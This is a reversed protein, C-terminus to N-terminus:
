IYEGDVPSFEELTDEKEEKTTTEIKANEEKKNTLKHENSQIIGNNGLIENLKEVLEQQSLMDNSVAMNLLNMKESKARSIYQYLEEGNMNGKLYEEMIPAMSGFNQVMTALDEIQKAKLEKKSDVIRGDNKNTAIEKDAENKFRNIEVTTDRNSNLIKAAAEDPVVNVEPTRFKVGSFRKLKHEIEDELVNRIDLSQQIDWIGDQGRVANKIIHQVDDEEMRDQFFYVQVDQLFYSVEVSVNFYFDRNKMAIQYNKRLKNEKLSITVKRNYHGHRVETTSYATGHNIIMSKREGAGTQYLLFCEGSRPTMVKELLGLKFPEEKMIFESM